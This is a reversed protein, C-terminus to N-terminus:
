LRSLSADKWFSHEPFKHYSVRVLYLAYPTIVRCLIAKLTLALNGVLKFFSITKLQKICLVYLLLYM